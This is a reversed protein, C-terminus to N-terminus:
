KKWTNRNKKIGFVSILTYIYQVLLSTSLFM